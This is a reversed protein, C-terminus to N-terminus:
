CDIVLIRFCLRRRCRARIFRLRSRTRSWCLSGGAAIRDGILLQNPFSQLAVVGISEGGKEGGVGNFYFGSADVVFSTRHLAYALSIERLGADTVELGQFNILVGGKYGVHHLYRANRRLSLMVCGDPDIATSLPQSQKVLTSRYQFLDLRNRCLSRSAWRRLRRDLISEPLLMAPGDM